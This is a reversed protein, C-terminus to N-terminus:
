GPYVHLHPPSKNLNQKHHSFAPPVCGGRRKQATLRVQQTQLKAQIEIIDCSEYTIPSALQKEMQALWQRLNVMNQDLDQVATLTGQLKRVRSSLVFM